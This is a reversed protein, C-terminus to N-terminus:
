CAPYGMGVLQAGSIRYYGDIRYRAERMFWHRLGPAFHQAMVTSWHEFQRAPLASGFRSPGHFGFTTDASVCVNHVGLYMTCSSYCIRGRVEVRTRTANLGEIELARAGIYGGRDNGIVKVPTVQAFSVGPAATLLLAVTLVSRRLFPAGIWSAHRM